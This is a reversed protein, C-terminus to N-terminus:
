GHNTVEERLDKTSDSFLYSLHRYGDPLARMKSDRPAQCRRLPVPTQGIRLGERSAEAIMETAVEMGETQFNLILAAERTLGRLGCHFDRVATHTRWRSLAPLFRAGLRHSYFLAENEIGEWSSEFVESTGFTEPYSHCFTGRQLKSDTDKKDTLFTKPNDGWYSFRNGVIMDTGGRALPPADLGDLDEWNYAMDCDGMLIDNEGAAMIGTQMNLSYGPGAETLIQEGTDTASEASHDTFGNHAVPNEGSPAHSTMYREPERICLGIGKEENRRLSVISVDIPGTGVYGDERNGAPIHVFADIRSNGGNSILSALFRRECKQIIGKSM